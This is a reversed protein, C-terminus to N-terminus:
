EYGWTLSVVEARGTAKDLMESSVMEALHDMPGPEAGNGASWMSEDPNASTPAVAFTANSMKASRWPELAPFAFVASVSIMIQSPLKPEAWGRPKVVPRVQRSLVSPFM